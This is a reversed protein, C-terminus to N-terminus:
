SQRGAAKGGQVYALARKLASVVDPPCPLALAAALASAPKGGHSSESLFAAIEPVSEFDGTFDRNYTFIGNHSATTSVAQFTTDPLRDILPGLYRRLVAGTQLADGDCIVAGPIAFARMFELYFPISSEGAAPHITLNLEEPARSNAVGSSIFWEYIAAAESPGEVLIVGAAFFLAAAGSTNMLERDLRGENAWVDPSQHIRSQAGDKRLLLVQKVLGPRPPLLYPSQTAIFVQGKSARALGGLRRQVSPHLNAAPEDLLIIKGESELLLTSLMVAEWTGAGHMALSAEGSADTIRVDLRLPSVQHVAEVDLEQGQGLLAKFAEQIALFKQKGPGRGTKLRYLELPIGQEGVAPVNKGTVEDTSYDIPGVYPVRQNRTFVLSQSLLTGLIWRIGVLLGRQSSAGGSAKTLEQHAPADPDNMSLPSVQLATGSEAILGVLKDAHMVEVDPATDETLLRLVAARHQDELGEFITFPQM